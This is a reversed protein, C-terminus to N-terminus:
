LLKEQYNLEPKQNHRELLLEAVYEPSHERSGVQMPGTKGELTLKGFISFFHAFANWWADCDNCKGTERGRPPRSSVPPHEVCPDLTRAM